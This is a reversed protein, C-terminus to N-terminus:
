YSEGLALYLAVRNSLLAAQSQIVDIRRGVAFETLNVVGVMDITGAKYNDIGVSVAETANKYAARSEALRQSLLSENAMKTEVEAFANLVTQGYAATAEAQVSTMKFVQAQLAGGQFIPQLLAIGLRLFDPNAGIIALSPDFLRGAAASLSIAPLRALKAVEVDYFAAIVRDHAALVDPRRDLL